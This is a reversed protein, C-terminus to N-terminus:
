FARDRSRHLLPASPHVDVLEMALAADLEQLMIHSAHMAMLQVQVGLQISRSISDKALNRCPEIDAPCGPDPDDEREAPAEDVPTSVAGDDDGDKSFFCLPAPSPCTAVYVNSTSAVCLLRDHLRLMMTVWLTWIM